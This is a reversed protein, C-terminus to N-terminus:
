RSLSILSSSKWSLCASKSNEKQSAFEYLALADQREALFNRSAENINLQSLDLGVSFFGESFLQWLPKNRGEIKLFLYTALAEIQTDRLKGRQRIYSVVDNVSCDDSSLWAQTKAKILHELM